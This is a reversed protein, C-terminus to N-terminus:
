KFDYLEGVGHAVVLVCNEYREIGLKRILDRLTCIMGSKSTYTNVVYNLQSIIIPNVFRLIDIQM